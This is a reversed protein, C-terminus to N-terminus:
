KRNWDWKKFVAFGRGDQKIRDPRSILYPVLRLDAELTEFSVAKAMWIEKIIQIELVNDTDSHFLNYRIVRPGLHEEVMLEVSPLEVQSVMDDKRAQLRRQELLERSRRDM